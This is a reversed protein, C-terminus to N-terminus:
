DVCQIKSHELVENFEKMDYPLTKMIEFFTQRDFARVFADQETEISQWVEIIGYLLIEHLMITFDSM